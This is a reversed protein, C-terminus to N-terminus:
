QRADPALSTFVLPRERPELGISTLFYGALMGGVSQGSCADAPAAFPGTSAGFARSLARSRRDQWGRLTSVRTRIGNPSSCFDLESLEARRADTGLTWGKDM